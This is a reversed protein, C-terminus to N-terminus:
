NNELSCDQRKEWSPDHDKELEQQSGDGRSCTLLRRGVRVPEGRPHQGTRDRKEERRFLSPQSDYKLPVLAVV